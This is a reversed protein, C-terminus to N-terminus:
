IFTKYDLFNRFWTSYNERKREERNEEVAKKLHRM